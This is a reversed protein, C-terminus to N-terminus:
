AHPKIVDKFFSRFGNSYHHYNGRLLESVAHLKRSKYKKEGTRFKLHNIYANLIGKEKGSFGMSTLSLLDKFLERSNLLYHDNGRRASAEYLIKSITTKQKNFKNITVQEQHQRYQVSVKDIFRIENNKGALYAILEDHLRTGKYMNLYPVCEMAFRNRMFLTSGTVVNHNKLLDFIINGQLWSKQREKDFGRWEWMTTGLNQLNENVMKLNTFVANVHGNGKQQLFEYCWQLKQPLWVDDQDSLAIYDGKCFSIAKAFNKVVGLQQENRYIIIPMTCTQQFQQIVSITGDTSGDDCVVIEAPPMTQSVISQLQEVIYKEGNYTCMAISINM